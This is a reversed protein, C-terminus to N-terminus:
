SSVTEDSLEVGRQEAIGRLKMVVDDDPEEAGEAMARVQDVPRGLALALQEDSSDFAEDRVQRIISRTEAQQELGNSRSNQEEKPQMSNGRKAQGVPSMLKVKTARANDRWKKGGPEFNTHCRYQAGSKAAQLQSATRSTSHFM